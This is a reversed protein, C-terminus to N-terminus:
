VGLGLANGTYVHFAQQIQKNTPTRTHLILQVLKKHENSLKNYTDAIRQIDPWSTDFFTRKGLPYEDRNDTMQEQTVHFFPPQLRSTADFVVTLQGESIGITEDNYHIDVSADHSFTLKIITNRTYCLVLEPKTKVAVEQDMIESHNVKDFYGAFRHLLYASDTNLMRRILSQRKKRLNYVRAAFDIVQDETASKANLTLCKPYDFYGYVVICTTKKRVIDAKFLIPGRGHIKRAHDICTQHFVLKDNHQMRVSQDTFAFKYEGLTLIDADKLQNMHLVDTEQMEPKVRFAKKILASPISESSMMELTICEKRHDNLKAYWRALSKAGSWSFPVSCQFDYNEFGNRIHCLLANKDRFDLLIHVFSEYEAMNIDSGPNGQLTQVYLAIVQMFNAHFCVKYNEEQGKVTFSTDPLDATAGESGAPTFGSSDGDAPGACAGSHWPSCGLRTSFHMLGPPVNCVCPRRPPARPECQDAWHCLAIARSGPM